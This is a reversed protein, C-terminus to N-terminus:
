LPPLSPGPKRSRVSRRGGLVLEDPSRKEYVVNIVEDAWKDNEPDGVSEELDSRGVWGETQDLLPALEKHSTALRIGGPVQDKVNKTRAIEAGINLITMADLAETWSPRNYAYLALFGLGCLQFTLLLTIVIMAGTPMDPKQHTTGDARYVYAPADIHQTFVHKHVSYATFTLAAITNVPSAFQPMLSMLAILFDSSGKERSSCYPSSPPIDWDSFPGYRVGDRVIPGDPVLGSFPYRMQSCLTKDLTDFQLVQNISPDAVIEFFTGNGFISKTSMM